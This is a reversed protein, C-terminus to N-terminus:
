YTNVGKMQLTMRTQMEKKIVVDFSDSSIMMKTTLSVIDHRERKEIYKRAAAKRISTYQPFLASRFLFMNM